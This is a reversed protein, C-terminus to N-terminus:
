QCQRLESRWINLLRTNARAWSQLKHINFCLEKREKLQLSEELYTEQWSHQSDPFEKKTKYRFGAFLFSCIVVLIKHKLRLRSKQVKWPPQVSTNFFRPEPWGSHLPAHQGVGCKLFIQESKSDSASVLFPPARRLPVFTFFGQRPYYHCPCLYRRIRAM